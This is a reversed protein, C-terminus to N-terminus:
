WIWRTVPFFLLCTVGRQQKEVGKQAKGRKKDTKQVTQRRKTWAKNELTQGRITGKKWPNDPLLECCIKSSQRQPRRRVSAKTKSTFAAKKKLSASREAPRQWSFLGTPTPRQRLPFLLPTFHFLAFGAVGLPSFAFPGLSFCFHNQASSASEFHVTRPWTLWALSQKM